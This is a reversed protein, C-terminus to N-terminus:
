FNRVQAGYKEALVKILDSQIKDVEEAELTKETDQYSISFAMNKKDEGLNGGSYVDFLRVAKIVPHFNKIEEYLENYRIKDEVVFALDRLLAPYKSNEKYNVQPYKQCIDQLGSWNIEALVVQKKLGLNKASNISLKTLWGLEINNAMILGSVHKDMFSEIQPHQCFSTEVQNHGLEEILLTIIGKLEALLKESDNGALCIGLHNEQHPLFEEGSGKSIKGPSPFFVQGNEFFGLKDYNHQNTKINSILGPFLTRRMLTMQENIPNKVALYNETDIDMKKLIAEDRFSYNYVENLRAEKALINRIRRELEINENRHPLKTLSNPLKGEISAFGIIRLIEEALDEKISVDKMRWSPINVTLIENENTLTFGLKELINAAEKLKIKKGFFNNLWAGPLEITRSENKWDGKETIESVVAKPYLAKIISIAQNMAAFCNQPDQGKEFRTSAETRINLKGSSRRISKGLFNASEIIISETSETVASDLGGIIGAIALAKKSDAILLTGEPLEVEQKDLTTIKEGKHSERVIIKKELKTADFIHIPQGIDMMIFNSIDVINNISKIGVANLKDSYNSEGSVKIGDIRVALYKPCLEKAKLEIEPGKATKEVEKIKTEKISLNFIAAIERALGLHGFLDARHSLSKNDVELVTDNNDLYKAFSQGAKAKDDLIMLGEHSTGLGLEDEACLMGNSKEGRMETAAIEMGNAMKAGVLALPAKMGVTLNPAGCVIQLKEQGNNVIAIRLRDANPHAKVEEIEGIVINDYRKSLDIIDEVEVTKATLEKALEEPGINKPLSIYEKLWNLSLLM